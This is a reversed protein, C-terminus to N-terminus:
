VVAARVYEVALCVSDYGWIHLRSSGTKCLMQIWAVVFHTRLLSWLNRCPFPCPYCNQFVSQDSFLTHASFLYWWVVWSLGTCLSIVINCELYLGTVHIGLGTGAPVKPKQFQSQMAASVSWGQNGAINVNVSPLMTKWFSEWGQGLHDNSIQFGPACIPVLPRQLARGMM